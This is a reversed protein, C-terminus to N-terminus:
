LLVPPTKQPFYPANLFYWIANVRFFSESFINKSEASHKSDISPTPSIALSFLILIEFKLDVYNIEESVKQSVLFAIM